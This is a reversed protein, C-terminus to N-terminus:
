RRTAILIVPSPLAVEALPGPVGVPRRFLRDGEDTHITVNVVSANSSARAVMALCGALTYGKSRLVHGHITRTTM